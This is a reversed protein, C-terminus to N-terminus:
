TQDYLCGVQQLISIFVSFSIFFFLLYPAWFLFSDKWKTLFFIKKKNISAKAYNYDLDDHNVTNELLIAQYQNNYYSARYVTLGSTDFDITRSLANLRLASNNLKEIDSDYQASSIAISMALITISSFVSFLWAPASFDSFLIFNITKIEFFKESLSLLILILSILSISLLSLQSKKKLRKSKNFRAYAVIKIDKALNNLM